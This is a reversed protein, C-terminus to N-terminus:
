LLSAATAAPPFPSQRITTMFGSPEAPMQATSAIPARRGCRRQVPIPASPPRLHMGFLRRRRAGGARRRVSDHLRGVDREPHRAVSRPCRGSGRAGSDDIWQLSLAGRGARTWCQWCRSRGPVARSEWSFRPRRRAAVGPAPAGAPRACTALMLSHEVPRLREESCDKSDIRFRPRSARANRRCARV